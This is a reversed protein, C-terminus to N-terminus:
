QHAVVRRRGASCGVERLHRASLDPHRGDVYDFAPLLWGDSEVQV